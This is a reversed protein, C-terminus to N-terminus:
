AATENAMNSTLVARVSSAYWAKGHPTPIASETMKAAIASLTAGQARMTRMEALASQQAADEILADGERRFGFPM